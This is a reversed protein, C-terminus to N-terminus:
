SQQQLSCMRQPAYLTYFVSCSLGHRTCCAAGVWVVARRRRGGWRTARSRTHRARPCSWWAPAPCAARWPQSTTARRGSRRCVCLANFCAMICTLVAGEGPLGVSMLGGCCQARLCSRACSGASSPDCCFCCGPMRHVRIRQWHRASAGHDVGQAPVPQQPQLDASHLGHRRGHDAGVAGTACWVVVVAAADHADAVAATGANELRLRSNVVHLPLLLHRRYKASSLWPPGWILVTGPVARTTHARVQCCAVSSIYLGDDNGKEVHQDVRTNAVNYHYRCVSVCFPPTLGVEWPRRWADDHQGSAGVVCM